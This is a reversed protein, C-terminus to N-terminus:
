LLKMVDHFTVFLMLAMLLAFGATHIYNEYKPPIKRRFVALSAANVVLFLLKGGDLAPLPLLNMVALNVAILAALYLISEAAALFGNENNAEAAAQAEEGVDKITSVIGVPGSLDDLGASGNTLMMLSLRVLRVFDITNYWSYQLRILPTARVIGGYSFGYARYEQGNEDTYTHLALTRTLKEGGRKVTMEIEGNEGREVVSLVTSVDDKLYIREGNIAWIVDGVMIGDEGELPFGDNLRVIEATYFGEAGAYLVIMILLGTLFNMAAGAAFILFKKWFSQNELAFPDDSSEDEGELACFGGLPLLRLSYETEGKTRHLVTPGMGISFENVRVGCAKAALFHGLEHVAVLVGFILIAAIIYM